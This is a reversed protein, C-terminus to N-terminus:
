VENVPAADPHSDTHTWKRVALVVAVAGAALAAFPLLYLLRNFGSPKPRLLIWEGYRAVFYAKVDDGSKGAALQDRVVDRLEQALESPSDEVSLGQCVPCRLLSAVESTRRELASDRPAPTVATVQMALSAPSGSSMGTVVLFAAANLMLHARVVLM